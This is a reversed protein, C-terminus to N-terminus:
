PDINRVPKYILYITIGYGEIINYIFASYFYHTHPCMIAFYSLAPKSLIGFYRVARM